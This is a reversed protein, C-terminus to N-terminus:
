SKKQHVYVRWKRVTSNISKKMRQMKLIKNLFDKGGGFVYFYRDKNEKFLKVKQSRKFM